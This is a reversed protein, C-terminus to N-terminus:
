GRLTKLRRMEKGYLTGIADHLSELDDIDSLNITLKSGYFGNEKRRQICLQYDHENDSSPTLAVKVRPGEIEVVQRGGGYQHVKM